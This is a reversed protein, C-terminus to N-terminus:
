RATRALGLDSFVSSLRQYEVDLFRRTEAAGSYAHQERFLLAIPTFDDFALPSVGMIRNTLLPENVINLYHGDGAHQNMYVWSVTQGGGPKNVVIASDVFQREQLVKQLVRATLDTGGGPSTGVVIEVAREPRWTPQAYAHGCLLALVFFLPAGAM